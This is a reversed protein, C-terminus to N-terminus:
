QQDKSPKRESPALGPLPLPLVKKDESEQTKLDSLQGEFSDQRQDLPSFNCSDITLRSATGWFFICINVCLICRDITDIM